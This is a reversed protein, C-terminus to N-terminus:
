KNEKDCGDVLKRIEKIREEDSLKKDWLVTQIHGKAIIDPDLEELAISERYRCLYNLCCDACLRQFNKCQNDIMEHLRNNNDTLMQIYDILQNKTMKMLTSESYEKECKIM